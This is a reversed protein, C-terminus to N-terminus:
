IRKLVMLTIDDIKAAGSRFQYLAEVCIQIIEAASHTNKNAVLKQLRELGYSENIPNECDPVGDSYLILSNGPALTAAESTFRGSCFLGLPLNTNQLEHLDKHDLLLPLCHAANCIEVQGNSNAFGGVLTAFQNALTGQCFLRNAQEILQSIPLRSNYLSRFVAHLHSMLLSAAVGKGSVDGLFFYLSGPNEESVILDCYDGSVPGAPEYYYATQWHGAELNQKPLLQQQVQFALTLDRELRERDELSLHDLCNRALLDAWLRDNEIPEQCTECLGYTGRALKDLATDVQVLLHQLYDDSPRQIIAAELRQRRELLQEQPPTFSM